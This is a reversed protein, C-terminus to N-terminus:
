NTWYLYRLFGLNPDNSHTQLQELLESLPQKTSIPACSGAFFQAVTELSIATDKAPPQRHLKQIDLGTGPPCFQAMGGLLGAAGQTTPLLHRGSWVADLEKLLDGWTNFDGEDLAIPFSSDTQKPNAIWEKQNSREVLVSLRMKESTRLGDAILGHAQTLYAPRALTIQFQGAPKSPSSISFARLETFLGLAFYHYSLTWLVDSQDVAIQADLNYERAYDELNNSPMRPAFRQDATRKPIAFFYKEWTEIRGDGNLDSQWQAPTLTISKRQGLHIRNLVQITDALNVRVTNIENEVEAIIQETSLTPTKQMGQTAWTILQRTLAIDKCVVYAVRQDDNRLASASTPQASCTREYGVSSSLDPKPPSIRNQAFATASFMVIMAAAMKLPYLRPARYASNLPTQM